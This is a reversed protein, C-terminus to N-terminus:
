TSCFRSTRCTFFDSDEVVIGGNLGDASLVSTIAVTRPSCLTTLFLMIKVQIQATYNVIILDNHKSVFIM